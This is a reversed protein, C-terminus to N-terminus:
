GQPEAIAKVLLENIFSVHMGLKYHGIIDEIGSHCNHCPTICIKAGTAAMQEAKVRISKMRSLKWPPGCNIIGGGAACCYNHEYRPDMDTFNECLANVVYRLKHHLGRGRVINCPDQVTVPETIKRHIKLRGSHILEYYFEVAHIMPIPPKQWGLWKPGDYVAGRYAHGCEGMVVREVKLARAREWHAREVRGMVEFDGSYMAMNSNDWGDASPMTWDVNAAKMIVAMNGLLQAMIKPEPAIVSYMVEAGEKDLPIRADAFSDRADEEQWMLTDIWEDAQVWMQNSTVAHSNTTDQLYQPVIQLLSCIRRVTMILYAIDIGFPCYMSCRRCAGCETFAIRASRRLLDKDVRGKRKVMEWLTDKVKAVPAFDPDKDRSLYTHCAESCLGCHVCTELYVKLRAASENDLVHRIVKEIREPTLKELGEDIGRDLVAQDQLDM